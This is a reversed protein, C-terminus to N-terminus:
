RSKNRPLGLCGTAKYRGKYCPDIRRTGIIFEALQIDAFSYLICDILCNIPFALLNTNKCWRKPVVNIVYFLYLISNPCPSSKVIRLVFYLNVETRVYPVTSVEIFELFMEILM